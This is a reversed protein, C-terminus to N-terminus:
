SELAGALDGKAVRVDGIKKHSVSLDRQWGSNTRDADALTQRIALSAIYSELAGALDGKAVRVDGIKKHSVSLDRQWGSNTRDADALTQRIALSATYSELAGALDGKAVRVDGIRDHSVSLNREDGSRICAAEAGEFAKLADTLNGLIIWLDGLEGWAPLNDPDLATAQRYAAIAAAYDLNLRDIRAEHRLFSAEERAHEERIAKALERGKRLEARAEDFEGDDILKLARARLAAFEPRDNRLRALEQRLFVLEDAKRALRDPIDGLPVHEEGFRALVKRLPEEPVGKALALAKLQAKIDALEDLTRSTNDEIRGLRKLVERHITALLTECFEKKQEALEFTRFFIECALAYAISRPAGSAPPRFLPNLRALQDTMATAVAYADFEARAFLARDLAMKPLTENFQVLANERDRRVDEPNRGAEAMTRQDLTDAISRQVGSIFATMDGSVPKGGIFAEGLSKAVESFDEAKLGAIDKYAKAGFAVGAGLIKLLAAEGIM